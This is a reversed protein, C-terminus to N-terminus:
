WDKEYMAGRAISKEIKKQVENEDRQAANLLKDATKKDIAVNNEAPMHKNQKQPSQEQNNEPTEKPAQDKQKQEQQDEQKDKNDSENKQDKDKDEKNKNNEQNNQNSMDQPTKEIMHLAIALNYRTEEDDPNIRLSSKYNEAADIFKQNAEETKQIRKYKLGENYKLNGLNHFVKAMKKRNPTGAEFGMHYLTDALSDMKEIQETQYTTRQKQIANGAGYYAEISKKQEISKLYSNEADTYYGKQYNKNGIRLNYRNDTESQCGSFFMGGIFLLIIYRYYFPNM